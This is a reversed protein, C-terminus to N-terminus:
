SDDILNRGKLVFKVKFRQNLKELEKVMDINRESIFTKIFDTLLKINEQFVPIDEKKKFLCKLKSQRVKIRSFTETCKAKESILKLAIKNLESSSLNPNEIRLIGYLLSWTLCFGKLNEPFFEEVMQVGICEMNESVPPPIIYEKYNELTIFIDRLVSDLSTKDFITPDDAGHPEFREVIKNQKDIFLLNAHGGLESKHLALIILFFRKECKRIEDLVLNINGIQDMKEIPRDMDVHLFGGTSQLLYNLIQLLNIQKPYKLVNEPFLFSYKTKIDKPTMLNIDKYIQEAKNYLSEMDIKPICIDPYLKHISQLYLVSGYNTREFTDSLILGTYFEDDDWATQQETAM